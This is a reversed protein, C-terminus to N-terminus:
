KADSKTAARIEDVVTKTSADENDSLKDLLRTEIFDSQTPETGKEKKWADIWSQLSTKDEYIDDISPVIHKGWAAYREINKKNEESEKKIKEAAIASRIIWVGFGIAVASWFIAIGREFWVNGLWRALMMLSVGWGLMLISLLWFKKKGVPSFLAAVSALVSL